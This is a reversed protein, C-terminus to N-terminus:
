PTRTGKLAKSRACRGSGAALGSDREREAGLDWGRGIAGIGNQRSPRTGGREIERSADGRGAVSKPNTARSDSLLSLLRAGGSPMARSRDGSTGSASGGSSGGISGAARRPNRAAKSAGKAVMATGKGSRPTGILRGREREQRVDRQAEASSSTRSGKAEKGGWPKDWVTAVPVGAQRRGRAENALRARCWALLRADVWAHRKARAPANGRAAGRLTSAGDPEDKRDRISM